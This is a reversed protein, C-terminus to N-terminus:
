LWRFFKLAFAFISFALSILTAVSVLLAIVKGWIILNTKIKAIEITLESIKSALDRKYAKDNNIIEEIFSIRANHDSLMIEHDNLRDDYEKM